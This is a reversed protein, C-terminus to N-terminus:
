FGFWNISSKDYGLIQLVTQVILFASAALVLGIAVNTFISIAKKRKAVEGGSTILEFGAYAFMIASIPVVMYKFIFDILRKILDLFQNFGCPNGTSGDCKVLGDFSESSSDSDSNTGTGTGIGTDTGTDTNAPKNICGNKTSNVIQPACEICINGTKNLYQTSTCVPPDMCADKVYNLVKPSKCSTPSICDNNMMDFILPRECYIRWDGGGIVSFPYSAGHPIVGTRFSLVTGYFKDNPADNFYGVARFYYTLFLQLPQSTYFVNSEDAGASREIPITTQKSKDLLGFYELLDGSDVELNSDDEKFEFYTTFARNQYNGSYYGDFIFSTSSLVSYGTTYVMVEDQNEALVKTSSNFFLVSFGTLIIGIVVLLKLKM